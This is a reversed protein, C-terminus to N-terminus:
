RFNIRCLEKPKGGDQYYYISKITGKTGCTLIEHLAIKYAKPGFKKQEKLYTGLAEYAEGNGATFETIFYNHICDECPSDTFYQVELTDKLQINKELVTYRHLKNNSTDKESDYIVKENLKVTWYNMFDCFSLFPLSLGLLALITIGRKM